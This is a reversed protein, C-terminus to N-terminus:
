ISLLYIGRGIGYVLSVVIFAIFVYSVSNVIPKVREKSLKYSLLEEFILGGDLPKMPLLNFTGILFNLIGIWKFLDSLIIIIWPLQDGYIMSVDKNIILNEAPRFGAYATTSNNPNATTKVSFTGQDTKFTLKDGINSKKRFAIYDTLNRIEIGNVSQIVMGEELVGDSPSSPVVSSVLIGDSQFTAPILFSSLAFFITLSIAALSINFISGAAYIRLKALRSAKKIGEEDPEVFAGPLIAVLLIGISKIKIGEVRALIGHAFEHVILVTALGILGYGLPILLPNGPYDVGPLIPSAPPAQLFTKLSLIIFYVMLGMFFVSVLIGINMYMRWFRPSKQAISDILDRMKLTRRM